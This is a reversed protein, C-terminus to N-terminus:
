NVQWYRIAQLTSSGEAVRIQGIGKAYYFDVPAPLLNQFQGAAGLQPMWRIHYVNTFNKGNVTVSANANIVTYGFRLTVPVPALSSTAAFDSNWTENTAVTNKLFLVNLRPTTFVLEPGFGTTDLSEYYFGTSADKRYYTTDVPDGAEDRFVFRQFSTGGLTVPGINTMKFTDSGAGDDYSWWSNLTTPFYDTSTPPPNQGGGGSGAPLVTVAVQCFSTDFVVTFNNTGAVSPRGSGKLRITSAGTNAFVGTGKFSYGNITDTTITYPGSSGVNVTVELYHSDNLARNAAFTGGIQKPLCDGATNQLSGKAQSGYEQSIEKQCSLLFVSFLTVGMMLFILKRM